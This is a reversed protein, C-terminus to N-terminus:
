VRLSHEQLSESSHNYDVRLDHFDRLQRCTLLVTSAHELLLNCAIPKSDLQLSSTSPIRRWCGAPAALLDGRSNTILFREKADYGRNTM